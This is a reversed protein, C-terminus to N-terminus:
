AQSQERPNAPVYFIEGHSMRLTVKQRGLLHELRKLVDLVHLGLGAAVDEATCPRRELLALIAGNMSEEATSDPAHPAKRRGTFDSVLDVQGSFLKSLVTLRRSPVPGAFYDAAPRTATNLQTRAPAIEEALAAIKQAAAPEDTLGALLMVELWVQGKFRRTFAKLGEVVSEFSLAQHPRNVVSFMHADGADLSPLVLDAQLLEDQVEEMWLLSGNTIVAVPVDTLEKVATLLRGIGTHLTPEGSGALSVHDPTTGHALAPELEALVAAVPAYERREITKDTTRGLQCYV